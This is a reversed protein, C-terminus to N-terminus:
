TPALSSIGDGVERLHYQGAFFPPSADLGNSGQFRPRVKGNVQLMYEQTDEQALVRDSPWPAYALSGKRGLNSWLEEAV